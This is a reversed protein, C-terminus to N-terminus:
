TKKKRKLCGLQTERLFIISPRAYPFRLGVRFYISPPFQVSFDFDIKHTPLLFRVIIAHTQRTCKVNWM